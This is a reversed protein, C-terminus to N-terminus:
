DYTKEQKSHVSIHTDYTKIKLISDYKNKIM